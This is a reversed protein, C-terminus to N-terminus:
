LDGERVYVVSRTEEQEEYNDGFAVFTIENPGEDLAVSGSFNGYEDSEFVDEFNDSYVSVLSNPVTKGKVEVESITFAEENNPAEISLTAKPLASTQEPSPAPQAKNVFNSYYVGALFVASVLIVLLAGFAAKQKFDDYNFVKFIDFFSSKQTTSDVPKSVPDPSALPPPAPDKLDPPVAPAAAAKEKKEQTNKGTDDPM